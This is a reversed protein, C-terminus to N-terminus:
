EITELANAFTQRGGSEGASVRIVQGPGDLYFRIPRELGAKPMIGSESRTQRGVGPIHATVTLTLTRGTQNEIDVVVIRAGGPREESKILIRIDPQLLLVRVVRMTYKKGDRTFTIEFSLLKPGQTESEPLTFRMDQEFFEDPQLEAMRMDMPRVFWRRPLLERRLRIRLNRIPEPFLNQMRLRRVVAESRLPITPDPKALRAPDYFGLSLQTRLLKTDIGTIFKPIRSVVIPSGALIPTEPGFPDVLRANPGLYLDHEVDEGPSWFAVVAKEGRLFVRDLIPPPFVHLDPQITAGSLLTNLTRTALLPLRPHGDPNLLGMREDIECPIFARVAPGTRAALEIGRRIFETSQRIQASIRDSGTPSPVALVFHAEGSIPVADPEEGEPLYLSLVQAGPNKYGAAVNMPIPLAAHAIKRESRLVELVASVASGARASMAATRDPDAGLQWLPIWEGFHSAAGRVQEEWTFRPGSFLALPGRRLSESQVEPFRTPPPQGFIGIVPSVDAAILSLILNRMEETQPPRQRAGTSRDWLVVKARRAGVSKVIRGIDRYAGGYPNFVLGLLPEDPIETKVIVVFPTRHETLVQGGAHLRAELEYYGRPLSYSLSVPKDAELDVTKEPSAIAGYANIVRSSLRHTGAEGSPVRIEFLVPEPAEFIATERGAPRVDIRTQRILSVDDFYCTGRFDDGEFALRVQAWRTTKPIHSVRLSIPTWQPAFSVPNARNEALIRGRFDLWRVLLIAQNRTPGEIRAYARLVYSLRPSVPFSRRVQMQFATNGGDNIMQLCHGKGGRALKSDELVAIENFSPYGPGAVRDWGPYIVGLIPRGEFDEGQAPDEVSDQGPM